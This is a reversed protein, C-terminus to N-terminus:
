DELMSELTTRASAEKFIQKLIEKARIEELLTLNQFEPNNLKPM